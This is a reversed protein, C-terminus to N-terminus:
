PGPPRLSYVHAGASVPVRAGNPGVMAGDELCLRVEDEYIETDAAFAGLLDLTAEGDSDTEVTLEVGPDLAAAAVDVQVSRLNTLAAVLTNEAPIPAPDSWTRGYETYTLPGLNGGTLTGPAVSQASVVPDALGFALSRADITGKASKSGSATPTGAADHLTLRSVWYAHDHVLTLDARDTEPVYTFTVHAPSPDVDATGLFDRVLPYADNVFLTLHEGLSFEQFTYRYGLEDLSQAEGTADVGGINQQRTGPIPVLEDTIMAMNFFPINRLNELWYNTLTSYDDGKDDAISAGGSGEWIGAAPPGVVGYAKGFLDPYLTTLRYTAYGGMSYGSMAVRTMDVDYRRLVDNWVEFHDYENRGVYFGDTARSNPTVVLSGREQGVQQVFDTGNYQWHFQALSHNNWTIPLPLGPTTGGPVFISYAQLAGYFFVSDNAPVGPLGNNRGEAPTTVLRSPFIRVLTTGDAPVAPGPLGNAGGPVTTSDGGAVLLDFDVARAYKSINPATLNNVRRLDIAQVMDCPGDLFHCIEGDHGSQGQTIAFHNNLDFIAVPANDAFGQGGPQTPTPNASAPRLWAGVGDHLGTMAIYRWATGTPDHITRPVAVTIQNAVLDISVGALATIVTSTATNGNGTFRVHEGRAVASGGTGEGWLYIVEDTGQVNVGPNRSLTGAGTNLAGDRNWAIAVMTTDNALLTNLTVRYLVDVPGPAIRLEVLDAANNGYRAVDTPYTVDGTNPNAADQTGTGTSPSTLFTTNFPGGSTEAGWDDQVYDQYLYEGDAYAEHGAVLLPPATFRPDFTALQAPEPADEYLVAPGPPPSPPLVLTPDSNTCAPVDPDFTAVVNKDADMTVQCAGIGTCADSWGAFTFGSAPIADLMVVTQDTYDEICDGGCDIGAPSSTVSGGGLRTVSLRRFPIPNFTASVLKDADMTVICAGSGSCAGGWAGFTYGAAAVATLTVSTQDEFAENCDAGCDIGPPSSTVTGDGSRTVDLEFLRAPCAEGTPKKVQWRRADDKVERGGAAGGFAVCYADGALLTLIFGGDDGSNPPVVSLAGDRGSLLVKISFTGSPSRDIKAKRVAGGLAKNSYKFGRTGVPSWGAAPLAFVENSGTTGNVIVALTAGDITPDGVVTDTSNKERAAGRVSRKVADGTPDKIQFSKGLVTQTADATSATTLLLAVAALVTPLNQM